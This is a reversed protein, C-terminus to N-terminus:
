QPLKMSGNIGKTIEPMGAGTREYKAKLATALDECVREFTISQNLEDDPISQNHKLADVLTKYGKDALLAKKRASKYNRSFEEIFAGQEAPTLEALRQAQVDDLEMIKYVGVFHQWMRARQEPNPYDVFYSTLRGERTLADEFSESLLNTSLAIVLSRYNGIYRKLTDLPEQYHKSVSEAGRGAKEALISAEDFYLFSPKQRQQAERLAIKIESELNKAFDGVWKSNVEAVSVEKSYAGTAQYVGCIARLLITKGTGPPGYLIVGSYAPEKGELLEPISVRTVIDDKLVDDIFVKDLPSLVKARYPHPKTPDDIADKTSVSPGVVQDISTVPKDKIKWYRIPEPEAIQSRIGLIDKDSLGLQRGREEWERVQQDHYQTSERIKQEHHRYSDDMGTRLHSLTSARDQLKRRLIGMVDEKSLAM